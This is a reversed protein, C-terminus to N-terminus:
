PSSGACGRPKNGLSGRTWILIVGSYTPTALSPNFEQAAMFGKRVEVCEVEAVDIYFVLPPRVVTGNIVYLADTHSMRISTRRGEKEGSVRLGAVTGQLAGLIDGSAPLQDRTILTTTLNSESEPSRRATVEVPDLQVTIPALKFDVDISTDPRITYYQTTIPVYGIIQVSVRVLGPPVSDIVYRGEADTVATRDFGSVSVDVRALPNQTVADAISGTIRGTSQASAVSAALILAGGLVAPFASYPRQFSM